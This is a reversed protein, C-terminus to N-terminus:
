GNKHKVNVLRIQMINVLRIQMINVLVIQMNMYSDHQWMNDMMPIKTAVACTAM